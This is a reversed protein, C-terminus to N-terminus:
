SDATGNMKDKTLTGLVKQKFTEAKVYMTQGLMESLEQNREQLECIIEDLRENEQM